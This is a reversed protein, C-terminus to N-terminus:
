VMPGASEIMPMQNKLLKGYINTYNKDATAYLSGAEEYAAYYMLAKWVIAMQFQVPITPTDADIALLKAARYYDGSLVYIGKPKPGLGIKYDPLVTSNIPRNAVQPRTRYLQRWDDYPLDILELEDALSVTYLKFSDRAWHNFNAIAVSTTTDTCSTYAYSDVNAITNVTFGFRMFRWETQANQIDEWASNIWNVFRLSEGSQNIVSSPGTGSGGAESRLRKILELFTM